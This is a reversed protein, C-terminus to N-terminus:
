MTKGVNITLSEIISKYRPQDTLAAFAPNSLVSQLMSEKIVKENRLADAGLDFDAFWGDIADFFSDGHLTWPFFSRTCIDAYKRLMDLAKEANGQLSYVQAATFYIQAMINSHLRELDYTEAVSLTRQLIEEVKNSNDANLLLYVPTAGILAILHQYMSIQTVEKAKAPNGLMQYAQVVIEYDTLLPRISEGLLDLVEQPQQLMLYCVAEFSTAEKALWVDDGETKIRQCLEVVEHLIEEQRKKEDALMHHNVLLVAMQMLLPFCSYYKKIIRRCEGLVDDFPRTAFESSLRHYLKKIDEKIMQPAYGMLEDISINFYAALQPLFTIDPYSQGTEWKSVSAKSVGIYAAIEDQTIGKEKRKTVLMKAINIEKM